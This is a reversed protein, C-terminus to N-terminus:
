PRSMNPIQPTNHETLQMIRGGEKTYAMLTVLEKRSLLRCVALPPVPPVRSPMKASFFFFMVIIYRIAKMMGTAGVTKKMGIRIGANSRDRSRMMMNQAESLAIINNLLKLYKLYLFSVGCSCHTILFCYFFCYIWFRM